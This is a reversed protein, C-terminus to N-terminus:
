ARSGQASLRDVAAQMVDYARTLIKEVDEKGLGQSPIPPLVHIVLEGPIFRRRERDFFQDLPPAVMPLIPVQAEIAMYFAGKKFPLLKRGQHNRTGEPFILISAGRERLAKVVENLGSVARTRNKRDIFLNGGAAFLLGFFPILKLEKKGIIVLKPPVMAGFFPVDLGSQHNAVYICPQHAELHQRGEVRIKIGLVPLIGFALIRGFVGNNDLNGWRLVGYIVGLTSGIAVWVFIWLCQLYFLM